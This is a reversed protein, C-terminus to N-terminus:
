KKKNKRNLIKQVKKFVTANKVMDKNKLTKVWADLNM